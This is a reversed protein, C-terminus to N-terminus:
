FKSPRHPALCFTGGLFRTLLPQHHASTQLVEAKEKQGKSNDKQM